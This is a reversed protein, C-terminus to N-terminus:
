EGYKNHLWALLLAGGVVSLVFLLVILWRM